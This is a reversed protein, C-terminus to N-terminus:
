HENPEATARMAEYIDHPVPSPAPLIAPPKPAAELITTARRVLEDALAALASWTEETLPDSVPITDHWQSPFERTLAASTQLTVPDLLSANAWSYRMTPAFAIDLKVLHDGIKWTQEIRYNDGGDLGQADDILQAEM